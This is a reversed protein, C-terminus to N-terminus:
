VIEHIHYRPGEPLREGIGISLIQNLWMYRQDATEFRPAIRFYMEAPSVQEGRALRASAESSAHRYGMYTLYILAGDDSILTLRVDLELVGDARTLAWDGGGPLIEARLRPGIFNGGTVRVIKREGRPTQGLLQASGDLVASLIGLPRSELPLMANVDASAPM